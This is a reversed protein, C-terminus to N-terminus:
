VTSFYLIEEKFASNFSYKLSNLKQFGCFRLFTCPKTNIITNVLPSRLIQIKPLCYLSFSRILIFFPCMFLNKCHSKM